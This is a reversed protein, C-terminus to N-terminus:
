SRTIQLRPLDNHVRRNFDVCRLRINRKDSRTAKPQTTLNGRHFSCSGSPRKNASVSPNSGESPNPGDASKLDTAKLREAVDGFFLGLRRVLKLLTQQAKQKVILM